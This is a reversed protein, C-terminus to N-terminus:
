VSRLRWRAVMFGSLFLIASHPEPIFVQMQSDTSYSTEGGLQSMSLIHRYVAGEEAPLSDFADLGSFTSRDILVAPDPTLRVLAATYSQPPSDGCFGFCPWFTAMGMRNSSVTFDVLVQASSFVDGAPLVIRVFFIETGGTDVPPSFTIQANGVSSQQVSLITILSASSATPVLLFALALIWRAVM